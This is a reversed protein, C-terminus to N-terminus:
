LNRLLPAAKASLIRWTGALGLGLTVALAILAAAAAVGAMATFDLAMVQSVVYWAAITGAAVAFVATALGLLGYELIFATLLRTRTAGLTKLIVADQRRQRHGAALAGALVLMSVILALSAAIRVAQALDGILANVTNLADKVRVSTVAPFRATVAALVQREAAEDPNGPLSFTALNTHPAGRFTNPSFVMVFNIALSEWELERTNALRATVPRGLVNITVTDGIKLDFAEAIEAEFSVLPEGDYDAPWWEGSVLRSNDPLRPSYTLGRDGHLAWHADERPNIEAAAVGNVAAIRGRLMPVAQFAGGPATRALEAAFADREANQIDVFFFDPAQEAISGTLQRRLNADILALAVLLTLGLGLSLVVSGTLAGPRHINGIALRLTTGRLRGTRRALLTIATAVLRLIVFTAIVAGIYVFAIHRDAALGAALGALDALAVVQVIRYFWRAHVAVPTARDAFLSAAPLDRARGLPTLSFAVAVLLGYVVALALEVPYFDAAASVPLLDALLSKALFPLAAGIGLGIAIGLGALILIQLLYVQLILRGSAGLCKFTAIAPRKLDVFSSVANAVGVGGVVLATLGVLALFQAFREINRALGPAANARTRIRWGAEPFRAAAEASM